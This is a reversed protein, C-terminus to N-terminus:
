SVLDYADYECSGVKIDEKGATVFFYDNEYTLTLWNTNEFGLGDEGEFNAIRHNLSYYLNPVIQGNLDLFLANGGIRGTSEAFDHSYGFRADLAIDPIYDAIENADGWSSKQMPATSGVEQASAASGIAWLAIGLFVFLKKM